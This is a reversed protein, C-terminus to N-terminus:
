NVGGAQAPLSMFVIANRIFYSNFTSYKLTEAKLREDLVGTKQAKVFLERAYYATYLPKFHFAYFLAAICLLGAMGYLKPIRNGLQLSESPFRIGLHSNGMKEMERSVFFALLLFFMLLSVFVDFLFFLSIFYAVFMGYWIYREAPHFTKRIARILQWWLWLYAALGLLGYSFAIELLINHPKDFTEPTPTAIVMQKVSDAYFREFQNAGHGLIPRQAIGNAVVKWAILRSQATIDHQIYSSIRPLFAFFLVACLFILVGAGWKSALSGLLKPIPNGLPIGAILGGIVLGAIGARNHTLLLVSAQLAIIAYLFLRLERRPENRACYLALFISFSLYMALYAPNGLTSFITGSSAQVWPAQFHQLIGYLAVFSSAFVSFRFINMWDQKELTYAVILFFLAFHALTFLGDNRASSGWFSESVNTSALTSISFVIMMLIIAEGIGSKWGALTRGQSNWKWPVVKSISAMFWVIAMVEVLIEFLQTKGFTYPQFLPVWSPPIMPILLVGYLLYRLVNKTTM